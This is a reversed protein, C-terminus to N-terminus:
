QSKEPHQDYSHQHWYCHAQRLDVQKFCFQLDFTYITLTSLEFTANNQVLGIHSMQAYDIAAFM